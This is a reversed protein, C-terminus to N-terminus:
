TYNLLTLTKIFFLIQFLVLSFQKYARTSGRGNKLVQM